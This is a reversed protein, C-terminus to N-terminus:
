PKTLKQKQTIHLAIAASNVRGHTPLSRNCCVPKWTLSAYWGLMDNMHLVSGCSLISILLNADNFLFNSRWSDLIFNFWWSHYAKFAFRKIHLRTRWHKKVIVDVLNLLSFYFKLSWCHFHITLNCKNLYRGSFDSVYYCMFIIQYPNFLVLVLFTAYDSIKLM